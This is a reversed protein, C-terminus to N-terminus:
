PSGPVPSWRYLGFGDGDDGPPVAHPPVGALERGRRMAARHADSVIVCAPTTRGDLASDLEAATERKDHPTGQLLLLAELIRSIQGSASYQADIADDLVVPGDACAAALALIADNTKGASRERGYFEFTRMASAVALGAVAATVIARGVGRHPPGAAGARSWLHAAGAALALYVAPVVIGSYRASLPFNYARIVLPQFLVVSALIAVPLRPGRALCWAIAAAALVVWTVALADAPWPDGAHHGAGSLADVLSGGLERLGDGYREVNLVGGDRVDRTTTLVSTGDRRWQLLHHAVIPSYALAAAGLAAPAARRLRGRVAAPQAALWAAVGPLGFAAVPHCQVALGALAGAAVLPRRGGDRAAAAAAWWAAVLLGSGLTIAWNVHGFVVVPIFSTALLAATVVGAVRGALARGAGYAVPVALSGVLMTVLRPTEPSPHVKLGAATLYMLLPGNYGNKFALPWFGGEAIRASWIMRRVEDTFRPIQQLEPLRVAIALLLLGAAWAVDVRSWALSPPRDAPRSM